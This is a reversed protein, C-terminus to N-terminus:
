NSQAVLCLVWRLHILIALNWMLNCTDRFHPGHGKYSDETKGTIEHHYQHIIEHLLVDCVFLLRGEARFSESGTEIITARDTSIATPSKICMERRRRQRIESKFL